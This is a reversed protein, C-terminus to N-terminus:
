SLHMPQTTYSNFYTSGSPDQWTEHLPPDPTGLAEIAFHDWFIDQASPQHLIRGTSYYGFDSGYQADTYFEQADPQQNTQNKM